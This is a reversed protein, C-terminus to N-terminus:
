LYLWTLLVGAAAMAAALFLLSRWSWASPVEPKPHNAPTSGDLGDELDLAVSLDSSCEKVVKGDILQLNSSYGYLLAHDCLINILRPYGKSLAHIERVADPSFLAADGGAVKLRHGIYSRTESETLPDLSCRVPISHLDDRLEELRDTFDLQAVFFVKLLRRGAVQLTTLAIAEQLVERNLRQAEDIVIVARRNGSCANLLFLTFDARFAERSDFRRGLHLEAALLNCFDLGTLESGSVTVFYTALGDRHVIHKVLTTKGTGIDGTLLVCGDQELVARRLTEFVHAHKENLWLFDPDPSSRFPEKGLRFHSLYM